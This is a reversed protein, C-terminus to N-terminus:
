AGAHDEGDLRHDIEAFGAHLDEGVAPGGHGAVARERGLELVGDANGVPQSIKVSDGPVAHERIIDM